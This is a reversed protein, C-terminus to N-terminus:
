HHPEARAERDRRPVQGWIVPSCHVRGLARAWPVVAWPFHLYYACPPPSCSTEDRYMWSCLFTLPHLAGTTLSPKRAFHCPACHPFNFGCGTLPMWGETPAFSGGTVSFLSHFPCWYNSSLLECTLHLLVCLSCCTSTCSLLSKSTKRSLRVIQCRHLYWGNSKPCPKVFGACSQLKVWLPVSM